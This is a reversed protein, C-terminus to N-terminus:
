VVRFVRNSLSILLVILCHIPIELSIICMVSLFLVYPKVYWCCPYNDTGHVSLVTDKHLIWSTSFYIFHGSFLVTDKHLIEQPIWFSSHVSFSAAFHYSRHVRLAIATLCSRDPASLDSLSRWSYIIWRLLVGLIYEGVSEDDADCLTSGASLDQEGNSDGVKTKVDNILTPTKRWKTREMKVTGELM